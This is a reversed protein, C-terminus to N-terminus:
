FLLLTDHGVLLTTRTRTRTRTGHTHTHAHTHAHTRTHTRARKSVSPRQLPLMVYLALLVLSTVANFVPGRIEGVDKAVALQQNLTALITAFCSAMFAPLDQVLAPQQGQVITRATRREKLVKGGTKNTQQLLVLQAKLDVQLKSDKGYV